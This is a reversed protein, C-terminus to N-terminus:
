NATLMRVYWVIFFAWSIKLHGEKRPRRRAPARVGTIDAIPIGGAIVKRGDDALKLVFFLLDAVRNNEATAEHKRQHEVNVKAAVNQGSGRVAWTDYESSL